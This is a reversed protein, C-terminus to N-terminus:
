LKLNGAMNNM